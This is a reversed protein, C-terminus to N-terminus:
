NNDSIGFAFSVNAQYNDVKDFTASIKGKTTAYTDFGITKQYNEVQINVFDTVTQSVNSTVATNTSTGIFTISNTQPMVTVKKDDTIMGKVGIEYEGSYIYTNGERSLNLTAPIQVTYTSAVSAKVFMSHSGDSTYEMPPSVYYKNKTITISETLGKLNDNTIVTGTAAGDKVLYWTYEPLTDRVQCTNSINYPTKILELNSCYGFMGSMDTVSSTDFNSLDLSALFKCGNFMYSMDTVKSTDFNSLNLSTLSECNQFMSRMNTVKSTNFNSLDLSTLLTCWSFMSEMDTVKSTNFNSVDLSTLSKCSDFMSHMDTVGSTDFGSVDLSTLSECYQFMSRMNIVNSTDFSSVNLSTLSCCNFFMDNMYTVKSTDFNSVDLSTLSYCNFFMDNMYTVKSTNFNSVDLSTLSKCSDFMSSMNTVSSTNFNSINLSTLSTCQHFMIGM